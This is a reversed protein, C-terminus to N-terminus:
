VDLIDTSRERLYIDGLEEFQSMLRHTVAELAWEANVAEERIVREVDDLLTPDELMLRHAEFISAYESGVKTTAERGLEVLRVGAQKAAKRLRAVEADLQGGSLPVRM